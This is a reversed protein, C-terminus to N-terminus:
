IAHRNLRKRFRPLQFTISQRRSLRKTVRMRRKGNQRAAEVAVGLPAQGREAGKRLKKKRQREDSGLWTLYCPMSEPFHLSLHAVTLSNQDRPGPVRIRRSEQSGNSTGHTGHTNQDKQQTRHHIHLPGPSAQM